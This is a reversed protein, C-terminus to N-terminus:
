EKDTLDTMVRVTLPDVVHHWYKGSLRGYAYRGPNARSKMWAHDHGLCEALEHAILAATYYRSAKERDPDRSVAICFRNYKLGAARAEQYRSLVLRGSGRDSRVGRARRHYVEVVLTDLQDHRLGEDLAVAKILAKLDTSQYHTHNRLIM